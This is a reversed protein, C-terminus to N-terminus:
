GRRPRYKVPRRGRYGPVPETPPEAKQKNKIADEALGPEIDISGGGRTQTPKGDPGLDMRPATTLLGVGRGPGRPDGPRAETTAPTAASSSPTVSLSSRPTRSITM